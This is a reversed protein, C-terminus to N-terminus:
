QAVGVSVIDAAILHSLTIGVRIVNGTETTEWPTPQELCDGLHQGRYVIRSNHTDRRTYYDYVRQAVEQGNYTSVLTAETIEKVNAVDNATVDPNTVTYVTQTDRYRTGNILIDGNTNTAYTHAIVNVQTTIPETQVSVGIYTDSESVPTPTSSPVFVVLQGNEDSRCCVGWAFLVQQMAERKTQRVLLGRLTTDTVSADWVIPFAGNVINTFLTKASIGSLYAGGDFMQEELAGIADQAEIAWITTSRRSARTIYYVGYKTAGDRVEIPQKQQFMYQIDSQSNIVASMSSTPLEASILDMENECGASMIEGEGFVRIVGMLIERVRLRRNPLSTKSFTIVVKNFSTVRNELVFLPSTPTCVETDKLTNNQYWQITMESAYEGTAEDFTVSIGPASFQSSLTITLVPPTSFVGDEDSFSSSWFVVPDSDYIEFDGSLVWRNPELTAYQGETGSSLALTSEATKDTASYSAAADAGPAIDKYVISAAM